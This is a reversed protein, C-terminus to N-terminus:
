EKWTAAQSVWYTLDGNMTRKPALLFFLSMLDVHKCPSGWGMMDLNERSIQNVGLCQPLQSSRFSVTLWHLIITQGPVIAWTEQLRFYKWPGESNFNTYFKRVVLLNDRMPSKPIQCQSESIDPFWVCGQFASNAESFM